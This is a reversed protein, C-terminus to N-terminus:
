LGFAVLHIDMTAGANLGLGVFERHAIQGFLIFRESLFDLGSILQRSRTLKAKAQLVIIIGMKNNAWKADVTNVGIIM